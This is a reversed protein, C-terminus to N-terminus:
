WLDRAIGTDRYSRSFPPLEVVMRWNQQSLGLDKADRNERVDKLSAFKVVGDSARNCAQVM